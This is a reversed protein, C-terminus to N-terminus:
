EDEGVLRRPEQETTPQAAEYAAITEARLRGRDSVPVGNAVAWARITATDSTSGPASVASKTLPFGIGLRQQIVNEDLAWVTAAALFRYTYEEALPRTDCFM